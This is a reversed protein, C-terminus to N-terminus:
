RLLSEDVMARVAEPLSAISEGKDLFVVDTYKAATNDKSLIHTVVYAHKAKSVEDGDRLSWAILCDGIVNGHMDYEYDMCLSFNLDTTGFQYSKSQTIFEELMLSEGTALSSIDRLHKMKRKCLEYPHEKTFFIQSPSLHNKLANKYFDEASLNCEIGTLHKFNKRKFLVEIYRQDFVYIFKKGVLNEKYLKAAECIERAFVKKDATKRKAVTKESM